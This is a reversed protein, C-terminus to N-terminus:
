TTSPLLSSTSTTSADSSCTRRTLCPVFTLVAVCKKGGIQAKILSHPRCEHLTFVGQQRRLQSLYNYLTVQQPVVIGEATLIRATGECGRQLEGMVTAQLSMEGEVCAGPSAITGLLTEGRRRQVENSAWGWGFYTAGVSHQHHPVVRLYPHEPQTRCLQNTSTRHSLELVIDEFSPKM